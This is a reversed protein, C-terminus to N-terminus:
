RLTSQFDQLAMAWRAIRAKKTKWLWQLSHHDTRVDFEKDRLFPTLRMISWVIAFAELEMISWNKETDSLSRSVCQCIHLRGTDPDVQQLVGAIATTSADTDLVFKWKPNPLSMLIPEKCLCDRLREFAENCETTWVFEVNKKLLRNLPNALSAFNKIFGRFYGVMGLFRRVSEVSDPVKIAKIKEVTAPNVSIKGNEIIHGLYKIRKFGFRCKRINLYCNSEKMRELVQRFRLILDKFTSAFIIIDDIYCLVEEGYLNVLMKMVMRQFTSPANVLGFPMVVYEFLGLPTVFATCHISDKAMPIQHFGAKLDLPIFWKADYLKDILVEIIPLPFADPVTVLNLDRYDQCMRREGGPKPVMVVQAAWPSRSPRIAGADLLDKTQRVIEKEDQPSYYRNPQKIPVTKPQLQICCEEIKCQGVKTDKWVCEFENLLNVIEDKEGSSLSPDINQSIQEVTFNEEAQQLIANVQPSVVYKFDSLPVQVEDNFLIRQKCNISLEHSILWPRGLITEFVKEIISFEQEVCGVPSVVNLSVVGYIPATGVLFEVQQGPSNPVWSAKKDISLKDFIEKPLVNCDSGSDILVVVPYDGITVSLYDRNFDSSVSNSQPNKHNLTSSSTSVRSPEADMYDSKAKERKESAAELMRQQKAARESIFKSIAHMAEAENKVDDVTIVLKKDVQTVFVNSDVVRGQRNFKFCTEKTHGKKGCHECTPKNRCQYSKHNTLGCWKCVPFSHDQKSMGTSKFGAVAVRPSDELLPNHNLKQRPVTNEEEYYLYDDDRPKEITMVKKKNNVTMLKSHVSQNSETCMILDILEPVSCDRWSGQVTIYSKIEPPCRGLLGLLYDDQEIVPDKHWRQCLLAYRCCLQSFEHIADHIDRHERQPSVIEEAIMKYEKSYPFLKRAIVDAVVSVVTSIPRPSMQEFAQYLKPTANRFMAYVILKHPVGRNNAHKKLKDIYEDYERENHLTVEIQKIEALYVGYQKEEEGSLAPLIAVENEQPQFPIQNVKKRSLTDWVNDANVSTHFSDTEGFYTERKYGDKEEKRPKEIEEKQDVTGSVKSMNQQQSDDVM